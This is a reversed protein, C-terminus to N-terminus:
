VARTAIAIDTRKRTPGTKDVKAAELPKSGEPLGANIWTKLLTVTEEPLPDSDQPMRRAPNAHRLIAVLVSEGARGPQVVPKKGGKRIADLTDLALGGSIDTEKLNRESHCVTCHKRLVPRVDQWYTPDAAWSSAASTLSALAVLARTVSRVSM